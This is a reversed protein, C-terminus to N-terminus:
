RCDLNASPTKRKPPIPYRDASLARLVATLGLVRDGFVGESVKGTAAYLSRQLRSVAKRAALMAIGSERTPFRVTLRKIGLEVFIPPDPAVVQSAPVLDVFTVEAGPFARKAAVAHRPARPEAAAGNSTVVCIKM